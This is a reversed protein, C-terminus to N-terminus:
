SLYFSGNQIHLGVTRHGPALFHLFFLLALQAGRENSEAKQSCLTVRVEAVM